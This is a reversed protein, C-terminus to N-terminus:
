TNADIVGSRLQAKTLEYRASVAQGEIVYFGVGEHPSSLVGQTFAKAELCYDIGVSTLAAEDREAERVSSAIFVLVLTKNAFAASDRRSMEETPSVIILSFRM